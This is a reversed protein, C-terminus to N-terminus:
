DQLSQNSHRGQKCPFTLALLSFFALPVHATFATIFASSAFATSVSGGNRKTRVHSDAEKITTLPANDDRPSVVLFSLFPGFVLPLVPAFCLAASVCLRLPRTICLSRGRGVEFPASLPSPSPSPRFVPPCCDILLLFPVVAGALIQRQMSIVKHTHTHTRTVPPCM